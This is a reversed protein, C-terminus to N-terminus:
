ISKDSPFIVRYGFCVAGKRLWVVHFGLDGEAKCEGGQHGGAGDESGRGDEVVARAARVLELLLAGFGADGIIAGLAGDIAQVLLHIFGADGFVAGVAGDVAQM